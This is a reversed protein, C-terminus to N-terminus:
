SVLGSPKGCTHLRLFRFPGLRLWPREWWVSLPQFAVKLTGYLDEGSRSVCKVPVVGKPSSCGRRQRLM